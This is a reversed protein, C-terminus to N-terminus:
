VCDHSKYVYNAEKDEQHPRPQWEYLGLRETEEMLEQLGRHRGEARRHLYGQLDRMRIQPESEGDQFPIEGNELLQRLFTQSVHHREAAQQLTLLTEPETLDHSTNM